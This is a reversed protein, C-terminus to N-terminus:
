SLHIFDSSESGNSQYEHASSPYEFLSPQMAQWGGGQLRRLIAPITGWGEFAGVRALDGAEQPQPDVRILFDELSTFPRGRLIRGIIRRTLNRVQDLGMFLVKRDAEPSAVVFNRGSYNVHPPRVTLGM